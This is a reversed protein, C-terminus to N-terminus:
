DGYYIYLVALVSGSTPATSFSLQISFYEVPDDKFSFPTWTTSNSLVTFQAGTILVDPYSGDNVINTIPTVTLPQDETNLLWVAYSSIQRNGSGLLNGLQIIAINNPNTIYSHVATDTISINALPVWTTNSNGISNVLSQPLVIQVPPNM